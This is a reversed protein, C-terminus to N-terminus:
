YLESIDVLNQAAKETIQSIVKLIKVEEKKTLDGAELAAVARKLYELEQENM